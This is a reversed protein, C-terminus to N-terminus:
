VMGRTSRKNPGPSGPFTRGQQSISNMRERVQRLAPAHDYAHHMAAADPLNSGTAQGLVLSVESREQEVTHTLDHCTKSETTSDPANSTTLARQKEMAPVLDDSKKCVVTTKDQINSGTPQSSVLVDKAGELVLADALDKNVTQLAATAPQSLEKTKKTLRRVASELDHNAKRVSAKDGIDNWLASNIGGKRQLFRGNNARIAHVVKEAVAVKLGNEADAYEQCHVRIMDHYHKKGGHWISSISRCMPVDADTIEQHSIDFMKIGVKGPVTASSTKDEVNSGEVEMEDNSTLGVAKDNAPLSATTAAGADRLPWPQQPTPRIEVEECSSHVHDDVRVLRVAHAHDDSEKDEAASYQGNSSGTPQSPVLVDKARELRVADALAHCAKEVAEDDGVDNWLSPFSKNVKTLFRGKNARVARVVKEAVASKLGNEAEAFEHCHQRILAQFNATTGNGRHLLVDADTMEQFLVNYMKIGDSRASGEVVEGGEVQIKDEAPEVASFARKLFNRRKNRCLPLRRAVRHSVHDQVSSQGDAKMTANDDDEDIREIHTRPVQTKFKANARHTQSSDDQTDSQPRKILLSNIIADCISYLM